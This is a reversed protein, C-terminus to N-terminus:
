FKFTMLGPNLLIPMLFHGVIITCLPFIPQFHTIKWDGPFVTAGCIVTVTCLICFIYTWKFRKFLLQLEVFFDTDDLEKATAGWSMDIELFHSVLAQSIHM